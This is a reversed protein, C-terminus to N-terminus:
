GQPANQRRHGGESFHGGRRADLGGIRMMTAVRELMMQGCGAGAKPFHMNLQKWPM